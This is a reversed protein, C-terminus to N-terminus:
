GNYREVQTSAWTVLNPPQRLNSFLTNYGVAKPDTWQSNEQTNDHSNPESKLDISALLGCPIM